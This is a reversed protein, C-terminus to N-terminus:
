QPLEVRSFIEENCCLMTEKREPGFDDPQIAAARLPIPGCLAGEGKRDAGM